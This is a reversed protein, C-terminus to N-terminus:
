LLCVRCHGTALTGWAAQRRALVTVAMSVDTLPPHSQRDFLCFPLLPQGQRALVSSNVLCPSLPEPVQSRTKNVPSGGLLNCLRPSAATRVQCFHTWTGGATPGQAMGMTQLPVLTPSQGHQLRVPPSFRPAANQPSPPPSPPPPPHHPAAVTAPGAPLRVQGLEGDCGRELGGLLTPRKSSTTESPTPVWGQRAASPLM